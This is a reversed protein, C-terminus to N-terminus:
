IFEAYNRASYVIRVVSVLKKHEDARYLILFNKIVIKRYGERRLREDDCLSYMFPNKVVTCYSSHVDDLFDKAAQPNSLECAIYNIIEDIDNHADTSVSLKYDM